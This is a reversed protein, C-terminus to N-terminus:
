IVKLSSKVSVSFHLWLLCLLLQLLIKNQHFPYACFRDIFTKQQEATEGKKDFLHLLQPLVFIAFLASTIISFAAFLGLDRLV